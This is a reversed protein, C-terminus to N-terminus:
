TKSRQEDERDWVAILAFMMLKDYLVILAGVSLASSLFVPDSSIGTLIARLAQHELAAAITRLKEPSYLASYILFGLSTGGLWVISTVFTSFVFQFLVLM